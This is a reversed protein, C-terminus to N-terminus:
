DSESREGAQLLISRFCIFNFFLHFDLENCFFFICILGKTFLFHPPNKKTQRFFCFDEVSEFQTGFYNQVDTCGMIERLLKEAEKLVKFQGGEESSSPSSHPLFEILLTLSLLLSSSSSFWFPLILEEINHDWVELNKNYFLDITMKRITDFDSILYVIKERNPQEM